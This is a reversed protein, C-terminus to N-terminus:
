KLNEHNACALLTFLLYTLFHLSIPGEAVRARCAMKHCHVYAILKDPIVKGEADWRAYFDRPIAM